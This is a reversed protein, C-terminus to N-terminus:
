ARLSRAFGAFNDLFRKVDGESHQVSVLWQEAKGWPPLFVGGNHQMLWHAHSYRNDIRAHDRYNRVPEESFVLCGKAGITVVHAPLDTEAIIEECGRAMIGALRGTREYAADDLVECLTARAAAMMMPNGNFTGVQDYDRNVIHGM